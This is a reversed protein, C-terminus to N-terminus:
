PKPEPAIIVPKEWIILVICGEPSAVRHSSGPPNIIVTGAHQTGARDLQSGKLIFIHEYGGHMHLPVSANPQYKLFAMSPGNDPSNYVRAIEVGPRFPQWPLTKELADIHTLADTLVIPSMQPNMLDERPTAATASPPVDLTLRSNPPAQTCATLPALIGIVTLRLNSPVRLCSPVLARLRRRPPTTPQKQPM